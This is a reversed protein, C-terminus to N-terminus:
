GVCWIFFRLFGFFWFRIGPRFLRALRPARTVPTLAAPVKDVRDLEKGIPLDDLLKAARHRIV